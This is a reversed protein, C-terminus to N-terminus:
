LNEKRPDANRSCDLTPQGERPVRAVFLEAEAPGVSHLDVRELCAPLFLSQGRRIASEEWKSGADWRIVADGSTVLVIRPSDAAEEHWLEGERLAHRSLEFESAPTEYVVHAQVPDPALVYPPASDYALIAVLTEVDQYKPTLGARVVNDSQAMCEVAHGKLYAHPVGPGLFLAQGKELRVLNLLFASFLGVDGPHESWLEVFVEEEEGLGTQRQNLRQALRTIARSVEDGKSASAQMLTSYTAQLAARQESDPAAQAERIADLAEQGVLGALEPTRELHGVIEPLRRFGALATLRDLAV